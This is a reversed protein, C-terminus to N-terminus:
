AQTTSERVSSSYCQFGREQLAMGLKDMAEKHVRMVGRKSMKLEIATKAVNLPSDYGIGRRCRLVRAEEPELVLDIVDRVQSATDDFDDSTVAPHIIESERGTHHKGERRGLAAFTKFLSRSCYTSFKFGREPDFLNICRMMTLNGESVLEEFDVNKYTVRKAMSVVLPMNARAIEDRKANCVREANWRRCLDKKTRTAMENIDKIVAMKIRLAKFLRLEQAATLPEMAHTLSQAVADMM